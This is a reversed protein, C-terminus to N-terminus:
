INLKSEILKVIDKHIEERSREGDIIYSNSFKEPLVIFNNWVKVLKKEKEFLTVAEGRKNIREVCVKPSVKLIVILDPSLFKKNMEILEDMSLDDSSGFAFTSFYYRDSIVMKGEKLAPIILNNLHEKRDEIFLKQLELPDIKVKEDLIERIKKGADSDKTPEKTSVVKYGKKELYDKLFAVQTTQGSGDLGEMVIFLGKTKGSM